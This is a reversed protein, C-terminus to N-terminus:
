YWARNGYRFFDDGPNKAFDAGARDFGWDGFKITGAPEGAAGLSQAVVISIVFALRCVLSSM